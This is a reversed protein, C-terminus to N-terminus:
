DHGCAHSFGPHRSVYAHANKETLPLADMDARLAITKGPQDGQITAVIGTPPILAFAVGLRSFAAQIIEATRFEQWGPEPFKHFHRRMAILEQRRDSALKLINM